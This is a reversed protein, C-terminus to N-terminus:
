RDRLATWPMQSNVMRKKVDDQLLLHRKMILDDRFWELKTELANEIKEKNELVLYDLIDIQATILRIENWMYERELLKFIVEDLGAEMFENMDEGGKLNRVQLYRLGQCCSGAKQPDNESGEAKIYCEDSNGFSLCCCAVV